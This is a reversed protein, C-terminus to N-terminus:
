PFTSSSTLVTFLYTLPLALSFSSVQTVSGVTAPWSSSGNLILHILCINENYSISSDADFFRFGQPSGHYHRYNLATEQGNMAHLTTTNWSIRLRVISGLCSKRSILGQNMMLFSFCFFLHYWGSENLFFNWATAHEVLFTIAVTNQSWSLINDIADSDIRVGIHVCWLELCPNKSRPWMQFYTIYM